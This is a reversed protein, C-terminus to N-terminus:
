VIQLSFTSLTLVSAQGVIAPVSRFKEQVAKAKVKTINKAAVATAVKTQHDHYNKGPQFTGDRETVSARCPNGKPRVTCQWYTVYSKQQHFKYIYSLNDVLRAKGQKTGQEM